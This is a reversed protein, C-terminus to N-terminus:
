KKTEKKPKKKEALEAATPTKKAPKKKSKKSQTKPIEEAEAEEMKPEEPLEHLKVKDPLEIDPPMIKVKIGVTGSRLDARSQASDIGTIAVNGCKKMYGGYFRWSRAKQGPVGRGTIRIEAGIAGANLINNLARYGIGKFRGSGFREFSSAIRKAVITANLFPKDVEKVEIQPNELKFKTKLASTLKAINSGGRGIILGPRMARISIKTGMPTKEIAIRGAGANKSINKDLFERIKLYKIKQKIFEREIM